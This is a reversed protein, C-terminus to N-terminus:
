LKSIKRTMETRVINAISSEGMATTTALYRMRTHKIDVTAGALRTQQGRPRKWIAAATKRPMM